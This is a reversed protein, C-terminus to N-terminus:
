RNSELRQKLDLIDKQDPKLALSQQVRELSKQPQNMRYYIDALLNFTEVRNSDELRYREFFKAADELKDQSYYAWGILWLLDVNRPNKIELPLGLDLVRDYEKLQLSIRMLQLATPLASTDKSYASELLQKAETNKKLRILQTSLITEHVPSAYGPMAVSFKWVPPTSSESVVRFPLATTRAVMNGNHHLEVVLQKDGISISSLPLEKWIEAYNGAVELPNVDLAQTIDSETKQQHLIKYHLVLSGQNASFNEPFIVQHFIKMPGLQPFEAPLNPIIIKDGFQFPRVKTDDTPASEIARIPIVSSLYANKVSSPEPIDLDHAFTASSQSVNNSIVLTMGYKGPVIPRRGQYQFSRAKIKEFQEKSVKVEHTGVIQDLETKDAMTILADVSLSTYYEEYLGMDLKQPEYEVSYDLYFNGTPAQFWYIADRIGDSGMTYYVKVVPRGQLFDDVYKRKEVQYNRANQLKASLMEAEIADGVSSPHGGSSTLPSFMAHALDPDLVRRAYDYLDEPSSSKNQENQVFLSQPGDYMPSYLRYAGFGDKQFFLLYFSNPLGYGPYGAYQWLEMPHAQSPTFRKIFEPKGLLIYMRGRDTKWGPITTERGLNKIAYEFRVYHEDKFENKKTGPTPDRQEWFVDIFRDRDEDRKLSEFGRREYDSIIWHVEELWKTHKQNLPHLKEKEEAYLPLGILLMLVFLHCLKRNM